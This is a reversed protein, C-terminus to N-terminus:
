RAKTSAVPHREVDGDQRAVPDPWLDDGLGNAHNTADLLEGAALDRESELGERYARAGPPAGTLRDPLVDVGGALRRIRDEQARRPEGIGAVRVAPLGAAVGDEPQAEAEVEVGSDPGDAQIGTHGRRQAVRPVPDVVHEHALVDFPEVGAPVSAAPHLALDGRVRADDRPGARAPDHLRGEPEGLTAGGGPPIPGREDRADVLRVHEGRVGEEALNRGLDGRPVRRRPELGDVDVRGGEIEHLAGRREVHMTVSFMNPSM